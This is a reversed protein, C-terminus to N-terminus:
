KHFYELDKMQRVIEDSIVESAKEPFPGFCDNLVKRKIEETPYYSDPNDMFRIIAERLENVSSFIPIVPIDNFVSANFGAWLWQWVPIGMLLAEEALSSYTFIIIDADTLDKQQSNTSIEIRSKFRQFNDFHTIRYLPHERLRLQIFPIEATAVYVAECMDLDYHENMSSILLITLSTPPKKKLRNNIIQLHQYRLGGTLIVRSDPFGNNLFITRTLKGMVFFVDPLPMKFGDARGDLEVDKVLIGITKDSCYAAHQAAFVKLPYMTQRVGAYISRCFPFMEQFTLIIKPRLDNCARKYALSTLEHYPVDKGFISIILQKKFLPYLNLGDRIFLSKFKSSLLFSLLAIIARIKTVSYLVDIGRLYRQLLIVEPYKTSEYILKKLPIGKGAYCLYTLWGVSYGIKRLREPLDSFYIDRLEPNASHKFSLDWFGQLGVDLKINFSHTLKKLIILKHLEKIAFDLREVLGYLLPFKELFSRLNIKQNGKVRHIHVRFSQELCSSFSSKAGFLHIDKVGYQNAIAKISYLRLMPTYPSNIHVSDKASVRLFWWLSFGDNGKLAQRLTKGLICPTSAMEATLNTYTGRAKERIIQVINRGNIYRNGLSKEYVADKEPNMFGLVIVNSPIEASPPEFCVWLESYKSGSFTM